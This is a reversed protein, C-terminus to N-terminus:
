IRAIRSPHDVGRRIISSHFYSFTLHADLGRDNFAMLAWTM